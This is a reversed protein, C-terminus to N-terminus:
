TPAIGRDVILVTSPGGQPTMEFRREVIQVYRNEPADAPAANLNIERGAIKTILDGIKYDLHWGPLRFECDIEAYHNRDRLQEAFEEIAEWDDREDCPGTLVSAYTGSTKRWRKQFKEPKCIVM